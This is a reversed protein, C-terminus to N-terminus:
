YLCRGNRSGTYDGFSIALRYNDPFWIYILMRGGSDYMCIRTNGFIGVNANNVLMFKGPTPNIAGKAFQEIQPNQRILYQYEINIAFDYEKKQDPIGIFDKKSLKRGSLVILKDRLLAPIHFMCHPYKHGDSKLWNRLAIKEGLSLKGALEIIRLIREFYTSNIADIDKDMNTINQDVDGLIGNYMSAEYIDAINKM